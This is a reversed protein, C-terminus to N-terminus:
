MQREIKKSEEPGVPLGQRILEQRLEAEEQMSFANEGVSRSSQGAIRFILVFLLIAIILTGLAWYGLLRRRQSIKKM